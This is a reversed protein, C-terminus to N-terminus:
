EVVFVFVEENDKKMLYNERAFKELTKPNTTLNYLEYETKEIEQKYFDRDKELKKLENKFQYQTFLNNQDFFAVWIGFSFLTLVYKNKAWVPIKNWFDKM